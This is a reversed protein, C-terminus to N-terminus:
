KDFWAQRLFSNSTSTGTNKWYVDKVKPSLALAYPLQPLAISYMQDAMRIQMDRVLKLFNAEDTSKALTDLIKDLEPDNVISRNRSATSHYYSFGAEFISNHSSVALAMGDYKPKPKGSFSSRYAGGNMPNLKVQIGVTSLMAALAEAMTGEPSGDRSQFLVKTSFGKPYGADALLKKAEAINPKFYKQLESPFEKLEMFGPLGDHVPTWRRTGLGGWVLTNVKERDIVMSVARRVRVDNFPPRDNAMYLVMSSPYACYTMQLNTMSKMRAILSPQFIITGDLRGGQFAALAANDDKITYQDVGDFRPLGKQWYDPNKTFKLINKPRYLELIYPGSGTRVHEEWQFVDDKGAAEVATIGAPSAAFVIDIFETSPSKLQFQVQYKDLAVIDKVLKGPTRMYPLKKMLRKFTNVVDQAVVERGKVPDGKQFHVGERIKVTLTKGNNSWKWSEAMIPELPLMNCKPPGQRYKAVLKDHILASFQRQSNQKANDFSSPDRETRFRFVGGYKAKSDPTLRPPMKAPAAQAVLMRGDSASTAEDAIAVSASYAAGLALIAGLSTTSLISHRM